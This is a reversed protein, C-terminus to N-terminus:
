EVKGYEEGGHQEDVLVDKEKEMNKYEGDSWEQNRKDKRKCEEKVM